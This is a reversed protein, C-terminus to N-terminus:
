AGSGYLLPNLEAFVRELHRRMLTEARAADREVIAALIESHETTADRRDPVGQDVYLRATVQHTRLRTVTEQLFRNRSAEGLTEHFLADAELFQRFHRYRMGSGAKEMREVASALTRLQAADAREAALAAAAPEVLLRMEYLDRFGAADLEPAVTYGRHPEKVVLRDAELRALAERLPTPSVGLEVALRDIVIREGPQAQRDILYEKVAEYVDDALVRRTPVRVRPTAM